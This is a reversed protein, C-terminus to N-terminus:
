PKALLGGDVMHASGTIYSADDSLLFAALAAVEHPLGHRALPQMDGFAKHAAEPDDPNVRRETDRMMPTDIPAPCIANVRIPVDAYELAACKTLGVVGHKAATYAAMGSYAIFGATSATNVIAGGGAKVMHPLAARMGYWVANLNIEIVKRYDDLPTEHVLSQPGNIGANNVMASIGGWESVVESCWDDLEAPQTVDVVTYSAEGGAGQILEVTEKAGTENIDGVAVRYGDRALRESIARGIGSGGGTVCAVKNM